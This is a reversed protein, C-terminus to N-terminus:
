PNEFWLGDRISETALRRNTKKVISPFAALGHSYKEQLEGELYEAALIKAEESSLGRKTLIKELTQRVINIGLTM